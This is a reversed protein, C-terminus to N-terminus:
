SGGVDVCRLIPEEDYWPPPPDWNCSPRYQGEPLGYEPGGWCTPGVPRILAGPPGADPFCYPLVARLRVGDRSCFVDWVTATSSMSMLRCEAIVPGSGADAGADRATAGGGQCGAGALVLLVCLARARSSSRM